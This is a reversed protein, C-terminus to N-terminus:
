SQGDPGTRRQLLTNLRAQLKKAAMNETGEPFYQLVCEWYKKLIKKPMEHILLMRTLFIM